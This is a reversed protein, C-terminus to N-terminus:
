AGMLLFHSAFADDVSPLSSLDPMAVAVNEWESTASNWVKITRAPM